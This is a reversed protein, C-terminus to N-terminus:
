FRIGGINYQPGGVTNGISLQGTYAHPVRFGGTTNPSWQSGKEREYMDKIWDSEDMEFNFQDRMLDLQGLGLESDLDIRREAIALERLGLMEQLDLSEQHWEDEYELRKTELDGLFETKWVDHEMAEERWEDEKELQAYFQDMSSLYAAKKTAEARAQALLAEKSYGMQADSPNFLGTDGYM